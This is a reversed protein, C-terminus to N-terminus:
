QRSSVTLMELIRKKGRMYQSKSTSENIDLIQAIEKHDYGELLYLSCVLRYGDPLEMIAKHVKAVQLEISSYDIDEDSITENETDNFILEVKRRNLTNICRNVVIRKLWAGFTAEYKYSSLNQFANTFAEQLIDEADERSNTMRMCINFMAKAYENYLTQMAKANGKKAREITNGLINHQSIEM